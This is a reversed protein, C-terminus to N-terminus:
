RRRAASFGRQLIISFVFDSYPLPVLSSQLCSIEEVSNERRASHWNM